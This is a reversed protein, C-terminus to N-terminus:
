AALLRARQQKRRERELLIAGLKHLNFGVVGWAIYRDFGEIGRDRCRELGHVQLAHIASEIAPHQTRANVFAESSEREQDAQSLSGKKPLTVQDFHKDLQNRNDPSYFGKDFSIARLNPFLIQTEQSFDVTIKEDTLGHMVRYNLILGFQDELFACRVGLEVPVGAKGKVVWETYTEFLSFLKEAHPVTEDRIVRTRVQEVQRKAHAIFVKIEQAAIPDNAGIAALSAEALGIHREAVNLLALYADRIQQERAEKKAADDSNSRKLKIAFHYLRRFKLFNAHYERWGPLPLPGVEAAARGGLYLIKRIADVLLNADTPYHVDTKVVSSDCRGQLPVDQDVGLVEHAARVIVWNIMQLTDPQLRSLNQGLTRVPYRKDTDFPGHGLMQRLTDHHDALESLRDYDCGLGLRFAGLVFVQWLDMGPAGNDLAATKAFDRAILGLIAERSEEDQQVHKLGALIKPIDDRSSADLEIAEIPIQGLVLQPRQTHRM